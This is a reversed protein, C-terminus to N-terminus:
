ILYLLSFLIFSTPPRTDLIQYSQVDSALRDYNFWAYFGASM